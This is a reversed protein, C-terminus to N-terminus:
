ECEDQKKRGESMAKASDRLFRELDDPRHSVWIRTGGDEGTVAVVIKAAAVNM